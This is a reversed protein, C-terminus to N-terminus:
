KQWVVTFTIIFGCLRQVYLRYSAIGAERMRTELNKKDLPFMYEGTAWQKGIFSLFRDFGNESLVRHLFPVRTHVEVPFNRNPTTVFGRGAVRYLEKLFRTQRQADGVHELVANAHVMDFEGDRFPLACADGEVARIHPYRARFADLPSPALAAMREPWPYFKELYNDAASYEEDNVGIDLVTEHPQPKLVDTFLAFKKRRNREAVAYALREIM